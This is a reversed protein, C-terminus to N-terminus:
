GHYYEEQCESWIHIPDGTTGGHSHNASHAWPHACVGVDCDPCTSICPPRKMDWNRNGIRRIRDAQCTKFHARVRHETDGRSYETIYFECWHCWGRWEDGGDWPQVHGMQTINLTDVLENKM